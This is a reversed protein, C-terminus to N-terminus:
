PTVLEVNSNPSLNPIKDTSNLVIRAVSVPTTSNSHAAAIQEHLWFPSSRLINDSIYPTAITNQNKQRLYVPKIILPERVSTRPIDLLAVRPAEKTNLIAYYLPNNKHQKLHIRRKPHGTKPSSVNALFIRHFHNVMEETLNQKNAPISNTLETFLKRCQQTNQRRSEPCTMLMADVVNLLKKPSSCYEKYMPMNTFASLYGDNYITWLPQTATFKRIKDKMKFYDMFTYKNLVEMKDMLCTASVSQGKCKYKSIDLGYKKIKIPTEPAFEIRSLASINCETLIDTNVLEPITSCPDRRHKPRYKSSSIQCVTDKRSSHKCTQNNGNLPCNESLVDFTCALINNLECGGDYAILSKRLCTTIVRAKASNWVPYSNTFKDLLKIFSKVDVVGKDSVINLKKFVCTTKDCSQPVVMFDRLAKPKTTPVPTQTTAAGHSIDISLRNRNDWNLRFNCQTRWSPQIFESMDCCDLPDLNTIDVDPTQVEPLRVVNISDSKPTSTTAVAVPLKHLQKEHAYRPGHTYIQLISSFGCELLTSMNVLPPVQCCKSKFYNRLFWEPRIEVPLHEELDEYMSQSFMYNFGSLSSVPSCVDDKRLSEEPCNEIMQYMLCHLLGQGPCTNTYTRPRNEYCVDLIHDTLNRWAGDPLIRSLVVASQERPPLSEPFGLKTNICSWQHCLRSKRLYPTGFEAQVLALNFIFFLWLLGM